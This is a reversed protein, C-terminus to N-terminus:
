GLFTANGDVLLRCCEVDVATTEKDAMAVPKPMGVVPEIKDAEKEMGAQALPQEGQQRRAQHERNCVSPAVTVLALMGRLIRKMIHTILTFTYHYVTLLAKFFLMKIITDKTVAVRRKNASKLRVALIDVSAVPEEVTIIGDIREVVM